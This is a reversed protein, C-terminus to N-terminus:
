EGLIIIGLMMTSIPALSIFMAITTIKWYKFSFFNISKIAIGQVVRLFLNKFQSSPVSDYMANKIDKNSYVFIVITSIINRLLM